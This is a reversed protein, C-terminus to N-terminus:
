FWYNIGVAVQYGSLDFSEFGEFDETLSGKVSNYKLEVDLSLRNAIPMMFGAFGHYGVTIKNDERSDKWSVLYGIVDQDINPDYFWESQSFDVIEGQLRLNWFYIGVGGGVYPIFRDRRGTPTLKISVQLPTSSISLTHGIPEGQGYDFAYYDAGIKEEVYDKYLGYKQRNYGDVSFTLSAFSSLFYEYTFSFSTAHFDTKRFDMNEFEIDWLDSEVRPVFYAVKFSVLDAFSLSSLILIMVVFLITMKKM